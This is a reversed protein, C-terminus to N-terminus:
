FYPNVHFSKLSEYQLIFPANNDATRMESILHHTKRDSLYQLVESSYVQLIARKRTSRNCDIPGVFSRPNETKNRIDKTLGSFKEQSFLEMQIMKERQEFCFPRELCNHIGVLFDPFNWSVILQTHAWLFLFSYKLDENQPSSFM